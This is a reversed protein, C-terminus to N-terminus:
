ELGELLERIRAMQFNRLLCRLGESAEPAESEIREIVALTAERDLSLTTQRLEELVNAPLVALM